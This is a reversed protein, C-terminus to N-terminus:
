IQERVFLEHAVWLGEIEQFQETSLPEDSWSSVANKTVHGLDENPMEGSKLKTTLGSELRWLGKYYANLATGEEQPPGIAVDYTNGISRLQVIAVSTTYNSFALAATKNGLRLEVASLDSCLNRFRRIEELGNTQELMAQLAQEVVSPSSNGDGSIAAFAPESKLLVKLDNRLAMGVFSWHVFVVRQPRPTANCQKVLIEVRAPVERYATKDEVKLGFKQLVPHIPDCSVFCAIQGDESSEADCLVTEPDDPTLVARPMLREGSETQEYVTFTVSAKQAANCVIPVACVLLSILGTAAPHMGTM